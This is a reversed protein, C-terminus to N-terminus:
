FIISSKNYKNIADSEITAINSRKKTINQKKCGYGYIIIM